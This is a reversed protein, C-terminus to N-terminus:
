FQFPALLVVSTPTFSVARDVRPSPWDTMIVTRLIVHNQISQNTSGQLRFIPGSLACRRGFKATSSKSRIDTTKELHDM